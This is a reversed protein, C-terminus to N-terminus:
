VSKDIIQTYIPDTLRALIKTKFDLRQALDLVNNTLINEIMIIKPLPFADIHGTGHTFYLIDGKIPISSRLISHHYLVNLADLQGSQHIIKEIHLYETKINHIRPLIAAVQRAIFSSYKWIEVNKSIANFLDTVLGYKTLLWLSAVFHAKSKTLTKDALDILAKRAQSGPKIEWSVLLKAVLFITSEDKCHPGNYFDLVNGMRVKSYGLSVYYKVISPRTDPNHMLLEPVNKQLFDNELHSALTFYRNYVKSWRGVQPKLLFLRFRRKIKTVELKNSKKAAKLRLITKTMVSLWRNENPLFYDKAEQQSLIKTKGMNLRLGKVLLIQDLDKLIEKAEHIDQVGFDIDDMWRVFEGKTKSNLFKDVDFLFGHALLRPADFNLQPLGVGTLPLYDPRWLFSELLYFLLDLLAEDFQGISSLTNRLRRFSIGDYYNSIDTVVVYNFTKTFQYIREQFEPWLRWWEYSFSDDISEEGVLTSTKRSYFAKSSPQQKLVHPTLYDTITQLVVADEPSPIPLHRAIGHKKELRVIIPHKPRYNGQIVQKSIVEVKQEKAKHFDYYDHLDLIPQVRLGDLVIRWAKLMKSKQFCDKLTLSRDEFRGTNSSIM